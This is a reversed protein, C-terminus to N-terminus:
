EFSIREQLERGIDNVCGDWVGDLLHEKHKIMFQHCELHLHYRYFSDDYKGTHYVSKAGKPIVDMCGTCQHDKKTTVQKRKDFGKM